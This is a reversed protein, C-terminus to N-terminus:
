QSRVYVWSLRYGMYPPINLLLKKKKKLIIFQPWDKIRNYTAEM